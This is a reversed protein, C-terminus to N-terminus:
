RWACVSCVLDSLTYACTRVYTYTFQNVKTADLDIQNYHVPKEVTPPRIGITSTLVSAYKSEEGEGAEMTTSFREGTREEQTVDSDGDARIYENLPVPM